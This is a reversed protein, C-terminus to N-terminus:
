SLPQIIPLYEGSSSLRPRVVVSIDPKIRKASHATKLSSGKRKLDRKLQNRERASLGVHWWGQEIWLGILNLGRPVQCGKGCVIVVCQFMACIGLWFVLLLFEM